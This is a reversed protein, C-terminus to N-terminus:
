DLFRFSITLKHPLHDYYKDWGTPSVIKPPKIGGVTTEVIRGGVECYSRSFEYFDTSLRSHGKYPAAEGVLSVSTSSYTQSFEAVLRVPEKEAVTTTAHVAMNYVFHPLGSADLHAKAAQPIPPISPFDGGFTLSLGFQPQLTETLAICANLTM